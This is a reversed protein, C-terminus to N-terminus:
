GNFCHHITGWFSLVRLGKKESSHQLVSARIRENIGTTKLILHWM